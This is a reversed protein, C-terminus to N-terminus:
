KLKLAVEMAQACSALFELHATEMSEGDLHRFAKTRNILIIEMEELSLYESFYKKLEVISHFHYDSGRTKEM